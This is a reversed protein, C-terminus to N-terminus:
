YLDIVELKAHTHWDCKYCVLNTQISKRAFSRADSATHFDGLSYGKQNFVKYFM